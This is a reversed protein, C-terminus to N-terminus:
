QVKSALCLINKVQVVAALDNETYSANSSQRKKLALRSFYISSQSASLFETSIFLRKGNGDKIYRMEKSVDEPDCKIGSTEGINFKKTLYKHQEESFPRSM